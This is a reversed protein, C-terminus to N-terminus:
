GPRSVSCIERVPGQTCLHWHPASLPLAALDEEGVEGANLRAWIEGGGLTDKELNALWAAAGVRGEAKRDAPVADELDVVLADAGREVAKALKDGSLAPVYLHSRPLRGRVSTTM